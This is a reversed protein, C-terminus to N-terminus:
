SPPETKLLALMGGFDIQTDAWLVAASRLVTIVIRLLGAFRERGAQSPDFLVDHLSDAESCEFQVGALLFDANPHCYECLRGYFLRAHCHEARKELEELATLTHVAKVEDPIFDKNEARKRIESVLKSGPEESTNNLDQQLWFKTGMQFKVLAKAADQFPGDFLLVSVRGALADPKLHEIREKCASLRRALWSRAASVELFSRASLALVFPNECNLSQFMGEILRRVAYDSCLEVLRLRDHLNQLFLRAGRRRDEDFARVIEENSPFSLRQPVPSLLSHLFALHTFTEEGDECETLLKKAIDTLECNM